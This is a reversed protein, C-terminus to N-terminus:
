AVARFRAPAAPRMAPEKRQGSTQSRREKEAGEREGRAATSLRAVRVRLWSRGAGEVDRKAEISVFTQRRSGMDVDGPTSLRRREEEVGPGGDRVYTMGDILGGDVPM